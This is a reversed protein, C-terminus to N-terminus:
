FADRQLHGISEPELGLLEAGLRDVELASFGGILKGLPPECHRGGLHFDPMGVTADMISLDPPCHRFLDRISAHMQNHFLAKKWTGYNGSYHKPPLFGMMNKMAGTIESFSHAKLVPLSIVFHTWAIEPLHMQPFVECDTRTVTRLPLYNLDLLEVDFERAIEEYGLQHYIDPTELHSDGCGEGIVLTADTQERLHRLLVTIFEPSTTIPFAHPGVLNPKLLIQKQEKVIANAGLTEFIEPIATEYSKCDILLNQPMKKFTNKPTCWKSAAEWSREGIKYESCIAVDFLESL